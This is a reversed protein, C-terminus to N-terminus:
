RLPVCSAGGVRRLGPARAGRARAWYHAHACLGAEGVWGGGGRRRSRRGEGLLGLSGLACVGSHAAAVAHQWGKEAVGNWLGSSIRSWSKEKRESRQRTWNYYRKPQLTWSRPIGSRTKKGALAGREPGARNKVDKQRRASATGM